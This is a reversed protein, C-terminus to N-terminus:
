TGASPTALSIVVEHTCIVLDVRSTGYYRRVHSAIRDGTEVFGGDIVIVVDQGTEADTFQCTLADGTKAKGWGSSTLTDNMLSDATTKDGIPSIGAALVSLAATALPACYAVLARTSIREDSVDPRIKDVIWQALLPLAVSTLPPWGTIVALVGAQVPPVNSM